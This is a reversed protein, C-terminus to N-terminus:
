KGRKKFEGKWCRLGGEVERVIMRCEFRFAHSYVCARFRAAAPNGKVEGEIPLFISDGKEMEKFPYLAPRGRGEPNPKPIPVGKDIEINMM